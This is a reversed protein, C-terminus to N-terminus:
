VDYKEKEETKYSEDSIECIETYIIGCELLSEAAENFMDLTTQSFLDFKESTKERNSKLIIHIHLRETNEHVMYISNYKSYFRCIDEALQAAKYPDDTEGDTFIVELQIFEEGESCIFYKNEDAEPEIRPDDYVFSKVLGTRFNGVWLLEDLVDSVEYINKFKRDDLNKAYIM